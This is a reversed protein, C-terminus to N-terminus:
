IDCIHATVLLPPHIAPGDGLTRSSHSLRCRPTMTLSLILQGGHSVGVYLLSLAPFCHGRTYAPVLPPRPYHRLNMVLCVKSIEQFAFNQLYNGPKYETHFSIFILGCCCHYNEIDELMIWIPKRAGGSPSALGGLELDEECRSNIWWTSIGHILHANFFLLIVGLVYFIFTM